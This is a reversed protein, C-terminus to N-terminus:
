GNEAAGELAAGHTKLDFLSPICVSGAARNRTDDDRRPHVNSSNCVQGNSNKVVDM